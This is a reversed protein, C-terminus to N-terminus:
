RHQCGLDYYQDASQFAVHNTLWPYDAFSGDAVYHIVGDEIDNFGLAGDGSVLSPLNVSRNCGADQLAVITAVDSQPEVHACATLSFALALICLKAKM